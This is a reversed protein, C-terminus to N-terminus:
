PEFEDVRERTVDSPEVVDGDVEVTEGASLRGFKPGEPVGHEHALEPDFATERAVIRDDTREITDYAGELVTSLDDVLRERDDPDALAVPGVVETGNQETGFAVATEAVTARTRDRDVGSARGLLSEDLDAVVVEWRYGTAREGFRM